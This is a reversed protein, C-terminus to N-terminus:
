IYAIIMFTCTSQGIHKPSRALLWMIGPIGNAFNCTQLEPVSTFVLKALFVYEPVSHKGHFLLGAHPNHNVINCQIVIAVYGSYPPVSHHLYNYRKISHIVEM